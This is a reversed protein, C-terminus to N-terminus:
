WVIESDNEKLHDIGAAIDDLNSPGLKPSSTVKVPTTTAWKLYRVLDPANRARLPKIEGNPCDIYRELTETDAGDGIAIALRMSHRTVEAGFFADCGADFDDTPCGDTVLLIVPPLQRGSIRDSDLLEGVLDLAQGMATEGGAAVDQWEVQEIPTPEGIHWEATDAFAVASVMVQVEPNEAAVSRLEPLASRIAYNLSAIKEGRMSGSCDLVFIVQLQRRGVDADGIGPMQTETEAM